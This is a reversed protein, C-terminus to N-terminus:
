GQSSGPRFSPFFVGLSAKKGVGSEPQPMGASPPKRDNVNALQQLLQIKSVGSASQQVRLLGRIKLDQFAPARFRRGGAVNDAAGKTGVVSFASGPTKETIFLQAFLSFNFFLVAVVLAGSVIYNRARQSNMPSGQGLFNVYGKESVRSMDDFRRPILACISSSSRSRAPKIEYIANENRWSWTSASWLIGPQCGFIRSRYKRSKKDTDNDDDWKTDQGALKQGPRANDSECNNSRRLNSLHDHYRDSRRNRKPAHQHKRKDPFARGRREIRWSFEYDTPRITEHPIRDIDAGSHGQSAHGATV